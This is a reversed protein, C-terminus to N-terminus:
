AQSSKTCTRPDTAIPSDISPKARVAKVYLVARYVLRFIVDYSPVVACPIGYLLFSTVKSQWIGSTIAGRDSIM